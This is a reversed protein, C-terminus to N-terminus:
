PCDTGSPARGLGLPHCVVSLALVVPIGPIVLRASDTYHDSPPLGPTVHSPTAKGNQRIRDLRDHRITVAITVRLWGRQSAQLTATLSRKRFSERWNKWNKPKIYSNGSFDTIRAHWKSQNAINSSLYKSFEKFQGFVLSASIAQLFIVIWFYKQKM